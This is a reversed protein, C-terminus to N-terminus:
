NKFCVGTTRTSNIHVGAWYIEDCKTWWTEGAITISFVGIFQYCAVPAVLATAPVHKVSTGSGLQM